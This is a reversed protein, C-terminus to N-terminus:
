NHLVRGQKYGLADEPIYLPPEPTVLRAPFVHYLSWHSAVLGEVARAAAVRTCSQVSTHRTPKVQIVRPLAHM